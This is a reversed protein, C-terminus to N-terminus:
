GVRKWMCVVMYPPMNNHAQSKGFNFGVNQQSWAGSTSSSITKYKDNIQTGTAYGNVNYVISGSEQGHLQYSGSINPLEAETLTHTAEGDTTNEGNSNLLPYIDGSGLLFRDKLREWSGGFFTSPNTDNM